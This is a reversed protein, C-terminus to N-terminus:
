IFCSFTLYYISTPYTYDSALFTFICHFRYETPTFSVPISVLSYRGPVFYTSCFMLDSDLSSGEMAINVLSLCYFVPMVLERFLFVQLYLLFLSHTLYAFMAVGRERMLKKLLVSHFCCPIKLFRNSKKFSLM